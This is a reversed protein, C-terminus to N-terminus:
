PQRDVACKESGPVTQRGEYVRYSEYEYQSVSAPGPPNFATGRKAHTQLFYSLEASWQTIYVADSWGYKPHPAPTLRQPTRGEPLDAIDGVVWVRHGARLTGDIRALVPDIPNVSMMREKMMDYRFYAVFPITPLSTWAAQGHYYRNFPVNIFWPTLVVLDDKGALKAINGAVIDVNTQRTEVSRLVPVFVAAAVILAVAVRTLRQPTSRALVGIANDGTVAILACLVLYYWPATEYNLKRLFMLYGITGVLITVACYLLRDRELGTMSSKVSRKQYYLGVTITVFFVSLWILLMPVGAHGLVDSFKMWIWAADIPRHVLMNWTRLRQFMGVYGALSILAAGGIILYPVIAKLGDRRLGVVAAAVCFAALTVANYYLCQVSLVAILAASAIRGRSPTEVVRWIMGFTLVMLAVGLGYARNWGGYQAFDPSLGLLLLSFVPPRRGSRWANWWLAAIVLCSFFFGLIRLGFDTQGPGLGIYSRLIVFWLIPFSDFDLHNWVDSLRPMTAVGVSNIEDRWLPGAHNLFVLRLIIALASILLAAGWELKSLLPHHGDPGTNTPPSNIDHVAQTTL